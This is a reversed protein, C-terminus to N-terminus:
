GRARGLSSTHLVVDCFAAGARGCYILITCIRTLIVMYKRRVQHCPTGDLAPDLLSFHVHPQHREDAYVEIAVYNRVRVCPPIPTIKLPGCLVFLVMLYGYVVHVFHAVELVYTYRCPFMM